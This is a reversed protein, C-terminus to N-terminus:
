APAIQLSARGFLVHRGDSRIKLGPHPHGEGEVRGLLGVLEGAALADRVAQFSPAPSVAGSLRIAGTQAFVFGAMLGPAADAPLVFRIPRRCAAVLLLADAHSLASCDLLAGGSEPILELGEARLRYLGHVMLWVVFRVLFEPVLGYIYLAVAANAVAATAFLTPITLGSSLLLAAALAGVVMFLANFINNAAIVRARHEESSRQQVLAYLPVIFFGGFLGVLVLDLLVHWVGPATLLALAGLPEAALPGAPSAFSLDLGFVTLGISGFPVLGLEVRGASLRECLLSGIGIGLTFVALLLTVATEGGGLVNKTYAPFQALFLAGYLWFWSIGLISLFVTRNERAFRISRWTETLPNLNIRLTPAPPVAAPISRSALYGTVAIVFGVLTIITTAGGSGALLGGLLTGLLIAVFTGAEILANGGVLETEKLHQPLIAYKVPGFLTSHLGLLFLAGFLVALSHLVFGAGAVLVIGIELLKVLRALRAKDFKDALQGATASFLFFPLIFVGAALNALVEPKLATWSAAQFTLLVVLANKLVNDNLAGLFQTVFLPLFRRSKLLHSQHSPSSM